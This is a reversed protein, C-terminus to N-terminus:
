LRFRKAGNKFSFKKIINNKLEESVTLGTKNKLPILWGYKSFIDIVALLYKYHKNQKSYQQMDILDVAWTQDISNVYVRRKPFSKIVRRHLENALV